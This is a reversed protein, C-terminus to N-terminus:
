KSKQKELAKIIKQIDKIALRKLEIETFSLKTEKGIYEVADISSKLIWILKDEKTGFQVKGLKYNGM